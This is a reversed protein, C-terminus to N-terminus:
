RVKEMESKSFDAIEFIRRYERLENEIENFRRRATKREVAPISFDNRLKNVKTQEELLKELGPDQLTILHKALDQFVRTGEKLTTITSFDFKKM